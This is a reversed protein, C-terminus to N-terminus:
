HEVIQQRRPCTPALRGGVVPFSTTQWGDVARVKRSILEEARFGNTSMGGEETREPNDIEGYTDSGGAHSGPHYSVLRAPEHNDGKEHDRDRLSFEGM